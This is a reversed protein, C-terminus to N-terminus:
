RTSNLQAQAQNVGSRLRGIVNLFHSGRNNEALLEPDLALPRWLETDKEPFQFGSPMVGIVRVSQGDITISQNVVSPDAGFRRQWLAYSLLVVQDHQFQDEEKLFTRGLAANTGLTSFLNASAWSGRLREPAGVGSLNFGQGTYAALNDFSQCQSQLDVYEPASLEIEDLGNNHLNGWLVMLRSSDSYPLPRLVISNVVSFIASNAGIGLALTIVAIVAFAPRKLFGRFAFRLDKLTTDIM